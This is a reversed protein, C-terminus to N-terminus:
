VRVYQGAGVQRVMGKLELMTLLGGLASMPLGSAHGLDNIHTPGDGLMRLIAREDENEPLARRTEAQVVQQGLNLDVLIDEASTVLRAGDRILGNPGASNPSLVSGPVAFVERGQEAAFDTTILAGSKAPAETILVGLAMGSILRNRAPRRLATWVSNPTNSAPPRGLSGRGVPIIWGGM